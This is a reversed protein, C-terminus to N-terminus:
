WVWDANWGVGIVAAFRDEPPSVRFFVRLPGCAFARLNPFAGSSRGQGEPDYRLISM